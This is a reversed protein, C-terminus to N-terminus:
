KRNKLEIWKSMYKSAQLSQHQLVQGTFNEARHTSIDSHLYEIQRQFGESFLEIDFRSKIIEIGKDRADNWSSEDSYIQVAASILTQPDEEISGCFPLDGYIGEAGIPTTIVPTGSLMADMIKGKLGAGFRLPALCVRASRMVDKVDPAWGKLLFGQKENHLEALQQPMYNGYVHMEATPLAKRIGPWIERALWKVSDLNPAHQFNGITVMHIRQDFGPLDKEKIETTDILFPLYFLIEQPIRFQEKLLKLEIESIILSLDSRLISAIERKAQDTYINAESVSVGEKIVLERAKRLFHLDETDLIRVADPCTEAVRWGFQEETIFRDFIVLQPQLEKLMEDFSPHNLQIPLVTIGMAELSVSRETASATSAFSIHYGFDKYLRLLQMM